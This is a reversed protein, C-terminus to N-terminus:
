IGEIDFFDASTLASNRKQDLNGITGAGRLNEPHPAYAEDWNGHAVQPEM